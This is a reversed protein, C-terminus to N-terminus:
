ERIDSLEGVHMIALDGDNRQDDKQVESAAIESLGMSADSIMRILGDDPRKEKKLTSRPNHKKSLKKTKSCTVQVEPNLEGDSECITGINPQKQRNKTGHHSSFCNGSSSIDIHGVAKIMQSVRTTDKINIGTSLTNNIENNNDYTSATLHAMPNVGLLTM